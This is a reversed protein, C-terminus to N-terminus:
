HLLAATIVAIGFMVPVVVPPVFWALMLKKGQPRYFARRKAPGRKSRNSHPGYCGRCIWPPMAVNDYLRCDRFSPYHRRRTRAASFIVM